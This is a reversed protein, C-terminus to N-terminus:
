RPSSARRRSLVAVEVSIREVLTRHDDPDSGARGTVIAEIGRVAREFARRATEEGIRGALARLPRERWQMRAPLMGGPRAMEWVFNCESALASLLPIAANRPELAFFEHAIDLAQATKGELLFSAYKYAKPDAVTLTQEELDRAMIKKESLALKALDNAISALDHESRGLMAIVRPEATAGLADLTERVFRDRVDDSATTDIRLVAKGFESGIPKPRLSRPGVLDCIILINGEPVSQAVDVIERRPDVKLTQVDTVIVVRHEALFPMAAIAERLRGRESAEAPSFRQANLDRLDLPLLRDLLAELAREALVRETGEIVVVRPIKPQKELFDYFKM